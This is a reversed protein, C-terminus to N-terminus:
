MWGIVMRDVSGEAPTPAIRASTRHPCSRETIPRIPMMRSIPMTLFFAIMIISKASSASRPCPIDGFSAITCAHRRRKRGIMIVVSAASNPASGSAISLPVPASSRKGSPMEMM